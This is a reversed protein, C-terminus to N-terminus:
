AGDRNLKLSAASVVLLGAGTLMTLGALRVSWSHLSDFRARAPTGSPISDFGPAAREREIEPTIYFRSVVVLLLMALLIGGRTLAAKLSLDGSIRLMVVAVVALGGLNIQWPAFLRLVGGFITGAAARSPALHFVSPAVVVALTFMGGVWIGLATFFLARGGRTMM